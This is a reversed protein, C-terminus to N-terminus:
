KSMVSPIAGPLMEGLVKEMAITHSCTGRTGYFECTCALKGDGFSVTHTNHDGRVQVAFKQFQFRDREQAYRIAKEIKGIMGSDMNEEQAHQSLKGAPFLLVRLWLSVHEV